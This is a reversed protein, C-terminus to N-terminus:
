AAQHRGMYTGLGVMAPPVDTAAALASVRAELRTSVEQFDWVQLALTGLNARSQKQAAHRRRM